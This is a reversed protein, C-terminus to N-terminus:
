FFSTHICKKDGNGLRYEGITTAGIIQIKGRALAPKLINAADMGGEGASGAGILLHIEDIFCITPPANPDTLEQVISQVREEFEGRYKTGAVLNGLEISIVRHQSLKQPCLKALTTLRDKWWSRKDEEEGNVFSGDEGEEDDLELDILMQPAALIQAIGEVIASKGVGPEGIFCPNNKRRRLLIRLAMSIEKDRGYVPDLEKNWAAVTLDVGIEKLTPTPSVEKVGGSPILEDKNANSKTNQMDMLLAKCFQNKNFPDSGTSGETCRIMISQVGGQAPPPTTSSVPEADKTSFDLLSLLVHESNVQKSDLTDAIKVARTLVRKLSNTFPLDVDRAKKQLNLLTGWNSAINNNDSTNVKARTGTNNSNSSTYMLEVIQRAQRFTIKYKQLTKRANQPHDLIGLLMCETDVSPLMLRASEQQSTVLANILPESMREFMKRSTLARGAPSSSSSSSLWYANSGIQRRWKGPLLATNGHFYDFGSVHVVKVISNTPRMLFVISLKLLMISFLIWQMTEQKRNHVVAVVNGTLSSYYFRKKSGLIRDGYFFNDRRLSPNCVVWLRYAGVRLPERTVRAGEIDARVYVM